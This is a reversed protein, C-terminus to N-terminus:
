LEKPNTSEFITLLSEILIKEDEEFNVAPDISIEKILFYEEINKIRKREIIKKYKKSFNKRMATLSVVNNAVFFDDIKKVDEHSFIFSDSVMDNVAMKLGKLANKKGHDETIKKLVNSPHYAADPNIKNVTTAYLDMFKELEDFSLANENKLM